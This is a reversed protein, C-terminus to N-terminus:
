RTPTKEEIRVQIFKGRASHTTPQELPKGSTEIIDAAIQRVIEVFDYFKGSYKDQYPDWSITAGNGTANKFVPALGHILIDFAAKKPRGGGDAFAGKALMSDFGTALDRLNAITRADTPDPLGERELRWRWGERGSRGLASSLQELAAAAQEACRANEFLERRYAALRKRPNLHCQICAAVASILDYPDLPSGIAESCRRFGDVKRFEYLILNQRRSDEADFIEALTGPAEDPLRRVFPESPPM